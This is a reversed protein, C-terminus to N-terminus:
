LLSQNVLFIPARPNPEIKGRLLNVVRYVNHSNGVGDYIADLIEEAKCTEGRHDRLYSLLKGEKSTLSKRTGDLWVEMCDRGLRLVHNGVELQDSRQTTRLQRNVVAELAPLGVKKAIVFDAGENLGTQLLEQYGELEDAKNARIVIPIDALAPNRKLRMLLEIGDMEILNPDLKIDLLILDPRCTRVEKLAEKGSLAGVIEFGLPTFWDSIQEIRDLEDDVVLM